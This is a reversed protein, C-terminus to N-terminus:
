QHNPVARWQGSYDPPEDVDTGKISGDYGAWYYDTDNRVTKSGYIPDEVTTTGRQAQTDREFTADYAKQNKEWNSMVDVEQSQAQQRSNAAVTAAMQAQQQAMARNVQGTVQATQKEQAAQWQPDPKFSAV